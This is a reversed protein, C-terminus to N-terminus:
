RDDALFRLGPTESLTEDLAALLPKDREYEYEPSSVDDDKLWARLEKNAARQKALAAVLVVCVSDLEATKIELAKLRQEFHHFEPIESM